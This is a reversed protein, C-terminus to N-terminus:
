MLAQRDPLHLEPSVSRPNPIVAVNATCAPLLAANQWSPESPGASTSSQYQHDRIRALCGKAEDNISVM